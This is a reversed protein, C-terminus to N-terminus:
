EVVLVGCCQFDHEQIRHICLSVFVQPQSSEPNDGGRPCCCCPAACHILSVSSWYSPRSSSSPCTNQIAIQKSTVFRIFRFPLLVTSVYCFYHHSFSYAVTKVDVASATVKVANRRDDDLRLRTVGDRFSFLLATAAGVPDTLCVCM